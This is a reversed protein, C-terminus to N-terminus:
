SISSPSFIYTNSGGVLSNLQISLLFFLIYIYIYKSIRNSGLRVSTSLYGTKRMRLHTFPFQVPMYSTLSFSRALSLFPDNQCRRTEKEQKWQLSLHHDIHTHTHTITESIHGNAWSFYDNAIKVVISVFFFFAFYMAIHTWKLTHQPFFAGVDDRYM